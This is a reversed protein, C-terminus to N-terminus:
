NGNNVDTDFSMQTPRVSIIVPDKSVILGKIEEVHGEALEVDEFVIKTDGKKVSLEKIKAHMNLM